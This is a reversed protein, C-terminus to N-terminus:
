QSCGAVFGKMGLAHEDHPQSPVAPRRLASWDDHACQMMTSTVLPTSIGFSSPWKTITRQMKNCIKQLKRKFRMEANWFVIVLSTYLWLFCSSYSSAAQLSVRKFSPTRIKLFTCGFSTNKRFLIQVDFHVTRAHERESIRFKM